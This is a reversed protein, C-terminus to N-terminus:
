MPFILQSIGAGQQSQVLSRYYHSTLMNTVYQVLGSALAERFMALLYKGLINISIQVLVIARLREPRHKLSALSWVHSLFLYVFLSM